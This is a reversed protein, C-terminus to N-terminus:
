GLDTRSDVNNSENSETVSNSSDVTVRVTCDPDYCNGDPGLPVSLPQSGGAPLPRAAGSCRSPPHTRM